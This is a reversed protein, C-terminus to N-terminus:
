HPRGRDAVIVVRIDEAKQILKMVFNTTLWRDRWRYRPRVLLIQAVDNRRAFDVLTEAVDKGELIRTEIRLKRAFDLHKEVAIREPEPLHAWDGHLNVFVAFCEAGWFDAVRRGRRILLTTSPAATIYILIRDGKRRAAPAASEPSPRASQTTGAAEATEEERLELERATQRLALERLAALTSEKFFNEMAKQAKAPDYVDGRRLRNMLAGTTADVMVVEDAQKVVWDPVTERVRVGSIEHVQDNLSELHQVNLTTLVDIGADLLVQIDEWRKSRESGPVNTHAMEDVLCVAPHRQLIAATDMEEFSTQHYALKRRPILELGQVRSITNKRGHPEFYGVVVDAGQRQLQQAEELMRFTKGVGAAYGLFVKLRGRRGHHPSSESETPTSSSM